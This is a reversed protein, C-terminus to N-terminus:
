YSDFPLVEITAFRSTLGAQELRPVLEDASSVIVCELGVGALYQAHAARTEDLTVARIREPFRTIHDHSLGALETAVHLDLRDEPTAVSFAFSNALYNRAFALEDDTIGGDIWTRHLDLVLALTEATQELSPFVHVVLARRGRGQAMRASAGYSLGRKSRVEHMLRATFTGGYACTSVQLPYFGPAGWQPAPQGLLIQSQTREPKDVVTLKLDRRSPGDPPRQLKPRPSDPLTGLHKEVAARAEAESIAGAFGLIAQGSVVRERHWARASEVTCRELSAATGLLSRGYPHDGYLARQFFRRALNGDDDRLEDIQAKLERALKHTEEVPFDPRLLVDGMLSLAADLKEKLVTVEFTLGDYDTLVDLSTGLADFGADIQARTKGGAGRALLEAAFNTLGDNGPGDAAAGTTLTVQARVLPLDHNEEVLLLPATM